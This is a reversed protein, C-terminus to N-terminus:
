RSQDTRKNQDEEVNQAIIWGEFGISSSITWARLGRATADRTYAAIDGTWHRLGLSKASLSFFDAHESIFRGADNEEIDLIIAGTTHMFHYAIVGSFRLDSFKVPQDPYDWTLHLTIQTGGNTVSYGLLHWDHFTM